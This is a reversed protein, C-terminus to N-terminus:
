CTQSRDVVGRKERLSWQRRLSLGTCVRLSRAQSPPKKQLLWRWSSTRNTGLSGWGWLTSGGSCAFRRVLCNSGIGLRCFVGFNKWAHLANWKRDGHGRWARNDTPQAGSAPHTVSLFVAVLFGLHQLSNTPRLFVDGLPGLDRGKRVM